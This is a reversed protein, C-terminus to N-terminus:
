SIRTRPDSPRAMSASSRSANPCKCGWAGRVVDIAAAAMADNCAIIATIREADPKLSAMAARGSEYSYDGAVSRVIDLATGRNDRASTIGKVREASVWSNTPVAILACRHHGLGLLHLAADRGSLRHNCTIESPGGEPGERNYFVLRIANSRLLAILDPALSVMTIAADIRYSAIADIAAAESAPDDVMFVMARCGHAAIANCLERLVEPYYVTTAGAMIVAIVSTQRTTM